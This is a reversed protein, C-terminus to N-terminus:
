KILKKDVVYMKDRGWLGRRGKKVNEAEGNIWKCM